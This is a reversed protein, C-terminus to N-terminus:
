IRKKSVEWDNDYLFAYEPANSDLSFSPDIAFVKASCDPYDKALQLFYDPLKQMKVNEAYLKGNGPGLTFLVLKENPTENIEDIFM